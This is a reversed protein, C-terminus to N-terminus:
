EATAPEPQPAAALVVAPRSPLSARRRASVVVLKKSSRPAARKAKVQPKRKAKRARKARRATRAVRRAKRGRRKGRRARKTVVGPLRGAGAPFYRTGRKQGTKRIQKEGLMSKIAKKVAVPSGGIAQAIQGVTQGPSSRVHAKIKGALGESSGSRARAARGRPRGRRAPAAGRGELVSRLSDLTSRRLLLDLEQVFTQIREKIQAEIANSM